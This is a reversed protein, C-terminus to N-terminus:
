KSEVAYSIAVLVAISGVYWWNNVDVMSPFLTTISIGVMILALVAFINGTITMKGTITKM